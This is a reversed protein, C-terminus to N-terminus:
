EFYIFKSQQPSRRYGKLDDTNELYKEFDEPLKPDNLLFYFNKNPLLEGFNKNLWRIQNINKDFYITYVQYNNDIVEHKKYVVGDFINCIFQKIINVQKKDNLFLHRFTDYFDNNPYIIEPHKSNKAFKPIKYKERLLDRRELTKYILLSNKLDVPKNFLNELFKKAIHDKHENCINHLLKNTKCMKLLEEPKMFGLFPLLIDVSLKEM